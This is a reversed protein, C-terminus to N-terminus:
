NFNDFMMSERESVNFTACCYHCTVSIVGEDCCVVNECAENRCELENM